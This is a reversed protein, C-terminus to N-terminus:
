GVEPLVFTIKAHEELLEDCFVKLESAPIGAEESIKSLNGITETHFQSIGKLKLERIFLKLAIEFNRYVVGERGKQSMNEEKYPNVQYVV